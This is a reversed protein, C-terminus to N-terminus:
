PRIGEWTTKAIHGALVRAGTANWPRGALGLREHWSPRRFRRFFASM